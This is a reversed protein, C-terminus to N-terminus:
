GSGRINLRGLSLVPFGHVPLPAHRKLHPETEVGTRHYHTANPIIQAHVVCRLAIRRIQGGPHL